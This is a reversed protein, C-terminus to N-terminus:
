QKMEEMVEMHEEVDMHDKLEAVEVVLNFEKAELVQMIDEELEVELEVM